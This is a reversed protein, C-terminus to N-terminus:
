GRRFRRAALMMALGAAALGLGGAIWGTRGIMFSSEPWRVIGAGQGAWLMGMVMAFLGAAGILKRAM